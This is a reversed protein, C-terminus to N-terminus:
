DSSADDFVGGAFAAHRDGDAGGKGLEEEAGM